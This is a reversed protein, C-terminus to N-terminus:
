PDTPRDPDGSGSTPDAAAGRALARRAREVCRGYVEVEFGAPASSALDHTWRITEEFSRRFALYPECEGLAEDVRRCLEEPAEGEVLGSLNELVERCFRHREEASM